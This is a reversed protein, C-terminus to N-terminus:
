HRAFNKIWYFINKNENSNFWPWSFAEIRPMASGKSSKRCHTFPPRWGSKLVSSGSIYLHICLHGSAKAVSLSTPQGETCHSVMGEASLAGHKRVGQCHKMKLLPATPTKHARPAPIKRLGQTWCHCFHAGTRGYLRIAGEQGTNQIQKNRLIQTPNIGVGGPALRGSRTRHSDVVFICISLCWNSLNLSIHQDGSPACTCWVKCSLRHVPVGWRTAPDCKKQVGLVKEWM